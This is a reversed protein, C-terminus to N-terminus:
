GTLLCLEIILDLSVETQELALAAHHMASSKTSMNLAMGENACPLVFVNVLAFAV